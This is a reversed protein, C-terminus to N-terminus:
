LMMAPLVTVKSPWSGALGHALWNPRLGPGDLCRGTVKVEATQTGM